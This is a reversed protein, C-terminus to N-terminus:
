DHSPHIDYVKMMVVKRNEELTMLVRNAYDELQRDIDVDEEGYDVGNAPDEEKSPVEVFVTDWTNDDFARLFEVETKKM